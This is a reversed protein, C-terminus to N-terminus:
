GNWSWTSRPGSSSKEGQSTRSEQDADVAEQSVDDSAGVPTEKSETEDGGESIPPTPLDHSINTLSPVKAVAASITQPLSPAPEDEAQVSIESVPIAPALEPKGAEPFMDSSDIDEADTATSTKAEASSSDPSASLQQSEQVLLFNNVNGEGDTAIM